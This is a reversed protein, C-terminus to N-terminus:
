PGVGEDGWGKARKVGVGVGVDWCVVVVADGVDSRPKVTFSCNAVPPVPGGVSLYPRFHM